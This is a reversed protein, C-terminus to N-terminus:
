FPLIWFEDIPANKLHDVLQYFPQQAAEPDGDLFFGDLENELRVRKAWWDPCNLRLWEWESESKQRYLGSLISSVEMAAEEQNNKTKLPMSSESNISISSNHTTITPKTAITANTSTANPLTENKVTPMELWKAVINEAM